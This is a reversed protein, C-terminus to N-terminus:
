WRTLTTADFASCQRDLCHTEARSQHVECAAHRADTV